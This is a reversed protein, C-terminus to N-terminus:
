VIDIYFNLENENKEGFNVLLLPINEAMEYFDDLFRLVVVV